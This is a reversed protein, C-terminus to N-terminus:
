PEQGRELEERGWVREDGPLTVKGTHTDFECSGASCRPVPRLISEPYRTLWWTTVADGHGCDGVAAEVEFNNLLDCLIWGHNDLIRKLGEDDRFMWAGLDQLLLLTGEHSHASFLALYRAVTEDSIENLCANATIVDYKISYNYLDDVRWWPVHWLSATPPPSIASIRAAEWTDWKNKGFCVDNVMAQSLYTAQTAEIQTYNHTVLDCFFFSNLGAGPGIELVTQAAPRAARIKSSITMASLITEVPVIPEVEPYYKEQMARLRSRISNFFKIDLRSLGGLEYMYTRYRDRQFRNLIEQLGKLETVHVLHAHTEPLDGWQNARYLQPSMERAFAEAEDYEKIGIM